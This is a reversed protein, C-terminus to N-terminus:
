DQPFSHINVNIPNIVIELGRPRYIIHLIDEKRIEGTLLTTGEYTEVEKEAAKRSSLWRLSLSSKNTSSIETGAQYVEFKDPLSQFKPDKFAPNGNCGFVSLWNDRNVTGNSSDRWIWDALKWRTVLPIDHFLRTFFSLRYPREILMLAEKFQGARVRHTYKAKKTRVLRNIVDNEKNEIDPQGYYVTVLHPSHFLTIGGCEQIYSRLNQQLTSNM